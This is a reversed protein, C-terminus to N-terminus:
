TLFHGSAVFSNMLDQAVVERKTPDETRRIPVWLLFVGVVSVPIAPGSSRNSYSFSLTFFTSKVTAIVSLTCSLM